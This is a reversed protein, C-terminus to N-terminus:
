YVCSSLQFISWGGKKLFFGVKKKRSTKPFPKLKTLPCLHFIDSLFLLSLLKTVPIIKWEMTSFVHKRMTNKISATWKGLPVFYLPWSARLKTIVYPFIINVFLFKSSWWCKSTGDVRWLSANIFYVIEPANWKQMVLQMNYTVIAIEKEQFISGM